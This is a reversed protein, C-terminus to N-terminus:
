CTFFKFNSAIFEDIQKQYIQLIRSKPFASLIITFREALIRSYLLNYLTSRHANNTIEKGISLTLIDVEEYPVYNEDQISDKTFKNETLSNLDIYRVSDIEEFNMVLYRSIIAAVKDKDITNGYIFFPVKGYSEVEEKIAMALQKRDPTDPIFVESEINHLNKPFGSFSMIREARSQKYCSCRVWGKGQVFVHRKNGCIKCNM